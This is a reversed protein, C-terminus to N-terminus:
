FEVKTHPIAGDILLDAVFEATYAEEPRIDQLTRIIADRVRKRRRKDNERKEAEAKKQAEEQAIRAREDARAQEAKREAEETARKAAEEAEAIKLAAEQEAAIRLKEAEEALAKARAEAQERERKEAAAKREEEERQRAEAEEQAKRATEEERLRALEAADEEQKRVMPILGDLDDLKQGRLVFVEDAREQFEEESCNIAAIAERREVLYELGGNPNYALADRIKRELETKRREEAQEWDTLPKRAEDRLADLRERIVRRSADVAEIQKRADENLEKGLADLAVKSKSVKMALSAIAKRGKTTTLDPVSARVEQEIKSIIQEVADNSNFLARIGSGTPLPVLATDEVVEM